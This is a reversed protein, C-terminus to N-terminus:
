ALRDKKRGRGEEEAAERDAAARDTMDGEVEAEQREAKLKEKRLREEFTVQQKQRHVKLEARSMKKPDGGM